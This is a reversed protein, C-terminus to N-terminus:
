RFQVHEAINRPVRNFTCTEGNPAMKNHPLSYVYAMRMIKWRFYIRRLYSVFLFFTLLVCVLLLFSPVSILFIYPHCHYLCLVCVLISEMVALLCLSWSSNHVSYLPVVCVVWGNCCWHHMIIPDLKGYLYLNYLSVACAM